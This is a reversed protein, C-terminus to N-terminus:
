DLDRLMILALAMFYTEARLKLRRFVPLPRSDGPSSQSSSFIPPKGVSPGAGAEAMGAPCGKGGTDASIWRGTTLLEMARQLGVRRPLRQTSGGGPM